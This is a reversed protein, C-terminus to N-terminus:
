CVRHSDWIGAMFAHLPQHGSYKFGAIGAGKAAILDTDQDGILLSAAVNISWEEIIDLLMGPNPKRWDSTQTYEAVIGEPHHPCYRFADIHAGNQRLVHQMHAHVAEVDPETYFGKAVGAQNTVVFVLYGKDNAHKIAEIAGPMWEFRDITGVYGKDVNIVGDRDLFLAQRRFRTPLESRAEALSNPVGIDIFYGKAEIGLLRGDRAVNPLIDHELSCDSAMKDVLSRRMLYVGGNILGPKGQTGLTGFSKIHLGDFDVCGYRASDPVSRVMAVADWNDTPPAMALALLNAELWSDGNLLWFHPDLKDRAHWLAGGTGAKHPEVAVEVKIGFRAVIKSERGYALVQDSEFQALLLIKRCGQRGLEEVLYDLFVRGGVDLLPKPTQATIAGLRSGLGGVLIVAQEPQNAVM